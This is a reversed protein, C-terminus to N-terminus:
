VANKHTSSKHNFRCDGLLITEIKFYVFVYAPYIMINDLILQCLKLFMIGICNFYYNEFDLNRSIKNNLFRRANAIPIM